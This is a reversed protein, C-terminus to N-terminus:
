PRAAVRRKAKRVPVRQPAPVDAVSALAQAMAQAPTPPPAEDPHLFHAARERCAEAKKPEGMQDLVTAKFLWIGPHNPARKTLRNLIGLAEELSGARALWAAFFFQADADSPDDRVLQLLRDLHARDTRVLEQVSATSM